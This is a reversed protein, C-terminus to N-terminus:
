RAAWRIHHSPTVYAARAHACQKIGASVDLGEEDVPVPVVRLGAAAFATRALRYGPEEMWMSDGPDLLVTAAIQLAQQSGSVIMIQEPDAQVARSTRLYDCIAERFRRAGMPDLCHVAHANPNKAHRTVLQAWIAFPFQDFAPQHVAFAGL